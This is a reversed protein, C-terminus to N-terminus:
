LMTVNKIQNDIRDLRMELEWSASVSKWINNSIPNLYLEYQGILEKYQRSFQIHEIIGDELKQLKKINKENRAKDVSYNSFWFLSNDLYQAVAYYVNAAQIVRSSSEFLLNEDNINWKQKTKDSSCITVSNAIGFRAFTEPLDEHQCNTGRLIKEFDKSVNSVDDDEVHYCFLRHTWMIDGPEGWNKAVASEKDLIPFQWIDFRTIQDRMEDISQNVTTSIFEIEGKEIKDSMINSIEQLAAPEIIEQDKNYFKTCISLSGFGFEYIRLRLWIINIEINHDKIMLSEAEPQKLYDITFGMYYRPIITKGRGFNGSKYIQGSELKPYYWDYTEYEKKLTLAEHIKKQGVEYGVATLHRFDLFIDTRFPGSFVIDLHNLNINSPSM